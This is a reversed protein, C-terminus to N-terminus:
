LTFLKILKITCNCNIENTIGYNKLNIHNFSTKNHIKDCTKNFVFQNWMGLVINHIINLFIEKNTGQAIKKQIFM